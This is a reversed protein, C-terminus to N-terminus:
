WLQEFGNNEFIEFGFIDLVGIFNGKTGKVSANIKTVLWNFLHNYIAKSLADAAECAEKPRHLINNLEGRVEITRSCLANALRGVDVKLFGAATTLATQAEASTHIKSGEGNPLFTVNSLHLIGACAEFVWNIDNSSFGLLQFATSRLPPSSPLSLHFPFPSLFCM